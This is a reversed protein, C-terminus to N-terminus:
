HVFSTKRENLFDKVSLFCILITIVTLAFVGVTLWILTSTQLAINYNLLSLIKQILPIWIILSISSCVLTLLGLEIGLPLFILTPSTGLTHQIEIKNKSSLLTLRVTNKVIFLLASCLFFLIPWFFSLWNNRTDELKSLEKFGSIITDSPRWTKLQSEISYLDHSKSSHKFPSIVWASPLPNFDLESLLEDGHLIEFEVKAQKPSRYKVSEIKPLSILYLSDQIINKPPTKLYVTVEPTNWKTEPLKNALNGAVISGLILFSCIFLILGAPFLTALNLKWGKLTEFLVFRATHILNM